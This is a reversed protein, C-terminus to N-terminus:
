AAEGQDFLSLQSKAGRALKHLERGTKELDGIVKKVKEKSNPTLIVAAYKEAESVPFLFGESTHFSNERIEYRKSILRLLTKQFVFITDYDGILYLWTNDDRFIGSPVYPGERPVAKESVEIWLNGTTSFKEDHKIEVGNRSEGGTMQYARSSYQIIPLGLVQLCYDVVFDQFILGTEIKNKRYPRYYNTDIV